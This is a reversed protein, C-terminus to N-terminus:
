AGMELDKVQIVGAFDRKGYLLLNMPKWCTPHPCIKLPDNRRGEVSHVLSELKSHPGMKQRKKGEALAKPSSPEARSSGQCSTYPDLSGSRPCSERPKIGTIENNLLRM